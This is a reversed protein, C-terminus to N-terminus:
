LSLFGKRGCILASRCRAPIPLKSPNFWYILTFPVRNGALQPRLRFLSGYRTAGRGWGPIGNGTRRNELAFYAAVPVMVFRCSGIVVRKEADPKQNAQTAKPQLELVFGACRNRRAFLAASCKESIAVIRGVPNVPGNELRLKERTKIFIQSSLKPFLGSFATGHPM